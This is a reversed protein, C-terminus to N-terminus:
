KPPLSPPNSNDHDLIDAYHSQQDMSRRANYQEIQITKSNTRLLPENKPSIALYTGDSSQTVLSNQNESVWMSHNYASSSSEGNKGANQYQNFKTIFISADLPGLIPSDNQSATAVEKGKLSS